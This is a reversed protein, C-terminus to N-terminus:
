IWSFSKPLESYLRIYQREISEWWGSKAKNQQNETNLKETSRSNFILYFLESINFAKSYKLHIKFSQSLMISFCLPVSPFLPLLITVEGLNCQLSEQHFVCSSSGAVGDIKNNRKKEKEGDNEEITNCFAQLNFAYTTLHVQIILNAREM